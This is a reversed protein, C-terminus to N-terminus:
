DDNLPVLHAKDKVWQLAEDPDRLWGRIGQWSPEGEVQFVKRYNEPCPLVSPSIKGGSLTGDPRHYSFAFGAGDERRYEFSYPSPAEGKVMYPSTIKPMRKFGNNELFQEVLLLPRAAEDLSNSVMDIEAALKVLGLKELRTAIVDLKGSFMPLRSLIFPCM